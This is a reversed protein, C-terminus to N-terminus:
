ENYNILRKTLYHLFAFGKSDKYDIQESRVRKVEYIVSSRVAKGCNRNDRLFRKQINNAGSMRNRTDNAGSGCDRGRKVPCKRSHLFFGYANM